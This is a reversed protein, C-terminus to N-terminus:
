EPSLYISEILLNTFFSWLIDRDECGGCLAGGGMMVLTFCGKKEEDKM